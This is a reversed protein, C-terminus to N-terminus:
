KQTQSDDEDFTQLKVNEYRKTLKGSQLMSIVVKLIDFDDKMHIKGHPMTVM